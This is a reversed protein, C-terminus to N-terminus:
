GNGDPAVERRGDDDIVIAPPDVYAPQKKIGFLVWGLVPISDGVARSARYFIGGLVGLTPLIWVLHPTLEDVNVTWGFLDCVAVVVGIFWAANVGTRVTGVTTDKLDDIKPM